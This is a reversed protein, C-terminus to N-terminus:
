ASDQAAELVWKLYRDAIQKATYFHDPRDRERWVEIGAEDLDFFMKVVRPSSPERPSRPSEPRQPPQDFSYAYNFQNILLVKYFLTGILEPEYEEITFSRRPGRVLKTDGRTRFEIGPANRIRKISNIEAELSRFIAELSERAAHDGEHSRLFRERELRLGAAHALGVAKDRATEEQVLRGTEQIPTDVVGGRLFSSGRALRSQLHDAIYASLKEPDRWKTTRRSADLDHLRLIARLVGISQDRLWLRFETEGRKNWEVYIDPVQEPEKKSISKKPHTKTRPLPSLLSDLRSAFEPNREAEESLLNVLSRLLTM